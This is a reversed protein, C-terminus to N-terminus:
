KSASVCKLFEERSGDCDGFFALTPQLDPAPVGYVGIDSATADKLIVLRAFHLRDFRGFPILDNQPDVVGPIRNM